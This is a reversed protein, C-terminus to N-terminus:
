AQEVTLVMEVKWLGHCTRCEGKLVMRRSGGGDTPEHFFENSQAGCHPCAFLFTTRYKTM